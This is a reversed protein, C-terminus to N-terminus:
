RTRKDRMEAEYSHRTHRCDIMSADNNNAKWIREHARIDVHRHEPEHKDIKVNPRRCQDLRACLVRWVFLYFDYYEFLM